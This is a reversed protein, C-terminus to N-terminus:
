KLLKKLKRDRLEVKTITINKIVSHDFYFNGGKSDQVRYIWSTSTEIIEEIGVEDNKYFQYTMTGTTFVNSTGWYDYNETLVLVDCINYKNYITKDYELKGNLINIRVIALISLIGYITIGTFIYNFAILIGPLAILLLIYLVNNEKDIWKNFLIFNNIIRKLM